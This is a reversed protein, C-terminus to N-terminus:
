TVQIILMRVIRQATVSGVYSIMDFIIRRLSLFPQEQFTRGRQYWMDSSSCEKPLPFLREILRDSETLELVQTLQQPKIFGRLGYQADEVSAAILVVSANAYIAAMRDLDEQIMADDDQIICLLDSM